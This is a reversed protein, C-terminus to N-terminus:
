RIFELEVETKDYTPYEEVIACPEEIKKAINKLMCSRTLIRMKKTDVEIHKEPITCKKQIRSKLDNLKQISDKRNCLAIREKYDIGPELGFLYIAGRILLGERTIKDYEKSCIKAMRKIRESLQVGDKLNITCYHMSFSSSDFSELLEMALDFSGMIAYSYDDKTLYGKAYFLEANIESIEFENLNVFDVKGEVYRLLNSIMKKKDPIVPIEIGKDWSFKSAIAIREWKSDDDFDPHFRIEDLGAEYLLKLADETVLDLSTYLHIHFNEGFEQKLLRIYNITRDIVILPDGGTIGAGKADMAFAESIIDSENFVPRENAYIVDRKMKEESLPCFFCSRPCLGTVFLVMKEGRVCQKCGKPLQGTKVSFFKTEEIKKKM